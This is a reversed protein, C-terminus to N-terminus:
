IDDAHSTGLPLFKPVFYHRGRSFREPGILYARLMQLNLVHPIQHRRSPVHVGLLLKNVALLLLETFAITIFERFAYNQQDMRLSFQTALINQM